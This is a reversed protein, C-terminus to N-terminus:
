TYGYHCSPEVIYVVGPEAMRFAALNKERTQIYRDLIVPFSDDSQYKWCGRSFEEPPTAARIERLAALKETLPRIESQAILICQQAPPLPPLKRLHERITPSDIFDIYDTM